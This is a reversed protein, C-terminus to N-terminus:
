YPRPSRSWAGFRPRPRLLALEVAIKSGTHYGMLDVPGSFGLADILDGMAQAYDLIEPPAPLHHTSPAMDPRIPPSRRDQRSAIEGLFAERFRPREDPEYSLLDAAPPGGM